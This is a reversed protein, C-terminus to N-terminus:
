ADLQAAVYLIPGTLDSEKLEKNDFMGAVRFGKNMLLHELEAPFFMRYRCYDEIPPQGDIRWIRKRVLLQARRDFSYASSAAAHFGDESIERERTEQFSGCAISAAM